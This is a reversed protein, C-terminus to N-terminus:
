NIEQVTDDDFNVKITKVKNPEIVVVKTKSQGDDNWMKVSHRGAALSFKTNGEKRTGGDISVWAWPYANVRLSGPDKKKAVVVPTSKVQKKPEETTTAAIETTQVPEATTNTPPTPTPGVEPATPVTPVTPVTPPAPPEVIAATPTSPKITEQKAVQVPPTSNTPKAQVDNPGLQLVIAAVVGLVAAASMVFIPWRHSRGSEGGTSAVHV